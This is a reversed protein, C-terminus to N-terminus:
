HQARSGENIHVAPDKRPWRPHFWKPWGVDCSVYSSPNKEVQGSLRLHTLAPRATTRPPASEENSYRCFIPRQPDALPPRLDLPPRVFPTSRESQAHLRLRASCNRWRPCSLATCIIPYGRSKANATAAEDGLGSYPKIRRDTTDSPLIAASSSSTLNM